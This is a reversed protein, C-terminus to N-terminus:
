RDDRHMLDNLQSYLQEVDDETVDEKTSEMVEGGASEVPAHEQAPGQDEDFADVIEIEPEPVDHLAAVGKGTPESKERDFSEEQPLPEMLRMKSEPEHVPEATKIASAPEGM